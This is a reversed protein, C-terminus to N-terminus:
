EGGFKFNLDIEGNLDVKQTLEGLIDAMVRLDGPSGQGKTRLVTKKAITVIALEGTDPDKELLARRLADAVIRNQVQAESSRLQAETASGDSSRFRKGEKNGKTFQGRENRGEKAM